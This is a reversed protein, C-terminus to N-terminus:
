VELLEREKTKGAQDIQGVYEHTIKELAEHARHAEDKSMEKARLLKRLEEQVDRRINRATVRAAESKQTVQKVLQTRRDATLEPIVLRILVGDSQPNLGLDAQQIAKTIPAFANKDWPQVVILRAEPANITALQNLPLPTDYYDVQVHEVLSSQARGTRVERLERQYVAVAKGMRARADDLALATLDEDAM